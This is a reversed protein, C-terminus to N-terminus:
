GWRLVSRRRPSDRSPRSGCSRNSRRACGAFARRVLHQELLSTVAALGDETPPVPADDVLTELTDDDSPVVRLHRRSADVAVTKVTSLYYSRFNTQPGSGAQLLSYVKVSADGVVDEAPADGRYRHAVAYAAPLHRRWLEGYAEASGGRARDLLDLDDHDEWAPHSWSTAEAVM